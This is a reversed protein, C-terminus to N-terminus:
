MPALQPAYADQIHVRVMEALDEVAETPRMDNYKNKKQSTRWKRAKKEIEAPSLQGFFDGEMGPAASGNPVSPGAAPFGPPPAGAAGFGPPYSM